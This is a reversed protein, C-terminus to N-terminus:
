LLIHLGLRARTVAVYLLQLQLHRDPCAKLSPGDLYVIDFSSGQSRHITLAAAAQVGVRRREWKQIPENNLSHGHRENKWLEIERNWDTELEPPCYVVTAVEGDRNELTLEWLDLGRWLNPESSRLRVSDDTAMVMQWPTTWGGKTVPSTFILPQEKAFPGQDTPYCRESIWTNWRQVRRNTWTLCRVHNEDRLTLPQRVDREWAKLWAQESKYIVIAEAESAEPYPIPLTDDLLAARIKMSYKLIPNQAGQRYVQTLQSLHPISFSASEVEGVPPLQAPDGMFLIKVPFKCPVDQLHRWLDESIMSCEDLVILKIGALNPEGVQRLVWGQGSNEPILKLLKHITSWRIYPADALMIDKLVGTAKNTTACFVIGKLGLEAIFYRCLTSKGTGAYGKLLHFDRDKSKLFDRLEQLAQQQESGLTLLDQESSEAQPIHLQKTPRDKKKPLSL